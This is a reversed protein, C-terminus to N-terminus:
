LNLGLSEFKNLFKAEKYLKGWSACGTLIFKFLLNKGPFFFTWVMMNPVWPILFVM